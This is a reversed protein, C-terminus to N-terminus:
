VHTPLSLFSRLAYTLERYIALDGAALNALVEERGQRPTAGSAPRWAQHELSHPAVKSLKDLEGLKEEVKYESLKEEISKNLKTKM